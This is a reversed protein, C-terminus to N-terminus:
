PELDILGKRIAYRILEARNHLDLKAMANARHREVTYPSINLRAAIEKSTLGEAILRLVERERETLPDGAPQGEKVRSLYDDLLRRTLPPSLYAQGRTVSRIADILEEPPAGKVVYGAAGAHLMEFFYQENEHMTLALIQTGPYEARLRRTAELGTTGPMAIDMLVVDPRLERVARFAEQAGSAEGVVTFDPQAELLLRLGARVIAHDDVILIRTKTM